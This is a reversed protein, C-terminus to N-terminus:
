PNQDPNNAVREHTTFSDMQAGVISNSRYDSMKNSMTKMAVHIGKSTQGYRLSSSAGVGYSEGAAMADHNAGLYVFQWNYVSHQHKVMETIKSKNNFVSANELGDTQTVFIVKSPREDESLSALFEGTHKIAYAWADYLATGGSPTYSKENLEAVHAIDVHNFVIKHEVNFKILTLTATGPQVKQDQLLSNFAGITDSRTSGMSGSEDLLVTM